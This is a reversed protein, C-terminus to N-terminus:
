RSCVHSAVTCSKLENQSRLMFCGKIRFVEISLNFFATQFNGVLGHRALRLHFSFLSIFEKLVNNHVNIRYM